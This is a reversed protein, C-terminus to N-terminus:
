EQPGFHKQADASSMVPVVEFTVLDAWHDFWPQFSEVSPALMLQYCTLGDTSVWSNLYTLGEPISRGGAQVREYVKRLNGPGFSEIVLYTNLM